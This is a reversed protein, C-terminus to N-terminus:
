STQAGVMDFLDFMLVALASWQVVDRDSGLHSHLAIHASVKAISQLERDLQLPMPM